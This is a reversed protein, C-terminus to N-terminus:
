GKGVFGKLSEGKITVKKGKIHEVELVNNGSCIRVSDDNRWFAIHKKIIDSDGACSNIQCIRNM